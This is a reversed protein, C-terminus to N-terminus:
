KVELLLWQITAGEPLETAGEELRPGRYQGVVAKDGVSLSITHRNEEVPLGLISSFVAATNAHGVCSACADKLLDAAMEATIEEVRVTSPHEALMNLSFANLLKM